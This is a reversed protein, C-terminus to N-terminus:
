FNWNKKFSKLRIESLLHCGRQKDQCKRKKINLVWLEKLREPCLTLKNSLSRRTSGSQSQRLISRRRRRTSFPLYRKRQIQWIKTSRTPPTSIYNVWRIPRWHFRYSTSLRSLNTWAYCTRRLKVSIFLWWFSITSTSRRTRHLKSPNTNSCQCWSACSNQQWDRWRNYKNSKDDILLLWPKEFVLFPKSDKFKDFPNSPRM